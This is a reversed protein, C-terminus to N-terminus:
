FFWTLGIGASLYNLNVETIVDEVQVDRSLSRYRVSPMLRWRKDSFFSLGSEIQWGWGYGSDAITDGDNNEVLYSAYGM